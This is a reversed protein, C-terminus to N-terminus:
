TVCLRGKVSQKGIRVDVETEKRHVWIDNDEAYCVVRTRGYDVAEHLEM